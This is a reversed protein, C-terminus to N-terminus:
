LRQACWRAHLLVLYKARILSDKKKKKKKKKKKIEYIQIRVRIESFINREVNDFDLFFFFFFIGGNRM